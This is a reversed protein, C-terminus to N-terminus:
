EAATGDKIWKDVESIKFKWMRGVKHAPMNKDKIWSLVTDRGVGLYECTEKMSFWREINEDFDM